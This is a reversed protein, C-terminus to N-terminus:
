EKGEMRDLRAELEEVLKVGSLASISDIIQKGMDPAVEGNAVAQLVQRVQETLSGNADFQFQVREAQARLAPTVRALVLAACQADGQLAKDIVVRVIAHADDLLAQTVRARRDVIGKPRGAKNPSPMGKRWNPNGVKPKEPHTQKSQHNRLWDPTELTTM